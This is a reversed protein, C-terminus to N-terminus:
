RSGSRPATEPATPSAPRPAEQAVQVPTKRRGYQGDDRHAWGRAHAMEHAILAQRETESPWAGRAPVIVADLGHDYCGMWYGGPPWTPGLLATCRANVAGFDDLEILRTKGTLTPGSAYQAPPPEVIREVRGAARWQPLFVTLLAFVFIAWPIGILLGLLVARRLTLPPKAVLATM